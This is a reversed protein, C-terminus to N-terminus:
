VLQDLLRWRTCVEWLRAFPLLSMCPLYRCFTHVSCTACALGSYWSYHHTSCSGNYYGGWGLGSGSDWSWCSSLIHCTHGHVCSRHYLLRSTPFTSGPVLELICHCHPVPGRSAVFDGHMLIPLRSSHWQCWYTRHHLTMVLLLIGEQSRLLQSWLWSFTSRWPPLVPM